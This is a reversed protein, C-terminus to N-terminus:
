VEADPTGEPETATTQTPSSINTNGEEVTVGPSEPSGADTTAPIVLEDALAYGLPELTMRTLKEIDLTMGQQAGAQLLGPMMELSWRRLAEYREQPSNGGAPYAKVNLAYDRLLGERNGPEWTFPVTVGEISFELEKRFNNDDDDFVYWSMDQVVGSLFRRVRAQKDSLGASVGSMLMQDQGLTKSQAEIGGALEPNQAIRNYWDSWFGIGAYAEQDVGGLKMSTVKKPDGYVVGGDKAEM